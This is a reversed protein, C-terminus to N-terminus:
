TNFKGSCPEDTIDYCPSDPVALCKSVTQVWQPGLYYNIPRSLMSRRLRTPSKSSPLCRVYYLYVNKADCMQMNDTINLNIHSEMDNCM